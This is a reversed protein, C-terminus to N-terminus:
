QHSQTPQNLKGWFINVRTKSDLGSYDRIVLGYKLDRKESWHIFVILLLVHFHIVLYQSQPSLPIKM